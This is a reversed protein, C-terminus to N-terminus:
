PVLWSPSSNVAVRAAPPVREDIERASLQYLAPRSSEHSLASVQESRQDRGLPVRGHVLQPRREFVQPLSKSPHDFASSGHAEAGSCGARALDDARVAFGFLSCSDTM